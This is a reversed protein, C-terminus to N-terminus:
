PLGRLTNFVRVVQVAGTVLVLSVALLIRETNRM